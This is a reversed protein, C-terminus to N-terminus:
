EHVRSVLIIFFVSSLIRSTLKRSPRQEHQRGFGPPAVGRRSRMMLRLCDAANLPQSFPDIQNSNGNADHLRSVVSYFQPTVLIIYATPTMDTVRNLEAAM